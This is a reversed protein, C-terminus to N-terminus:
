GKGGVRSVINLRKGGEWKEIYEWGLGKKTHINKAKKELIKERETKKEEESGEGKAFIRECERLGKGVKGKCDDLNNINIQM